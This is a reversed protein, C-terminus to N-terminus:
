QEASISGHRIAETVTRKVSEVVATTVAKVSSPARCMDEVCSVVLADHPFDGAYERKLGCTVGQAEEFTLGVRGLALCRAKRNEVADRAFGYTSYLQEDLIGEEQHSSIVEYVMSTGASLEPNVQM